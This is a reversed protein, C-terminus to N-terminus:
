TSIGAREKIIPHKTRPKTQERARLLTHYRHTAQPFVRSDEYTHGSPSEPNILMTHPTRVHSYIYSAERLPSLNSHEVLIPTLSQPFPVASPSSLLHSSVWPGSKSSSLSFHLSASLRGTKVATTTKWTRHTALTHRNSNPTSIFWHTQSCFNSASIHPLNSNM